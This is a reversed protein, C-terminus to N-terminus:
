EGKVVEVWQGKIRAHRTADYMAEVGISPQYFRGLYAANMLVTFEKTEGEKLPFYTYIRDDRIDQHDIESAAVGEGTLRANHIEWGSPVIHSLALNDLKRRTNNTVKLTVKLDTGQPLRAIDLRNGALDSYAVRLTLDHMSEQEEGAPAAGATVIAAYLVRPSDNSLSFASGELAVGELENRYYPSNNEANVAEGEGLRYSFRYPEGQPDHGIFRAMAMLSFALSQTSHWQESALEKAIADAM